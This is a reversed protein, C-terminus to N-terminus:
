EKFPHAKAWTRAFDFRLRAKPATSGEGSYGSLGGTLRISKRLMHLVVRLSLDPRAIITKGDIGASGPPADYVNLWSGDPTLVIGGDPHVQGLGFAYGGDCPFKATFAAGEKTKRWAADNCSGDEVRALLGGEFWTITALQIASRPPDNVFLLPEAPDLTLAAIGAALAPIDVLENRSQKSWTRLAAEVYTTMLALWPDVAAPTAKVATILLEETAGHPVQGVVAHSASFGVFGVLLLATSGALIHRM